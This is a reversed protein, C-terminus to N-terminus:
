ARRVRRIAATSQADPALAAALEGPGFPKHLVIEDVPREVLQESYGTMLVIQLRPYRERALRALELGSRGGPMVIDSLLLEFAGGPAELAALAAEASGVHSVECGAERLARACARAVELNDDVLLISQPLRAVAERQAAAAELRAATAPLFLRVRTGKGRVSDVKISGGAQECFGYVQSLGLGTGKGPPKTTFFPDFIRALIGPEIGRGTDTMEIVACGGDLGTEEGAAAARVVLRVTGGDPMADAANVALNLLALELGARDAVVTTPAGEARTELIISGTLVPKILAGWNELEAGLVMPEPQVPQRRAFALLQRTLKTASRVAREIAALSAARAAEDQSRKLLLANNAVVMLLNNFDHAVGGTLRGLAELKQAQALAAEARERHAMEARLARSVGLERQARGVATWAALALLGALPLIFAALLLMEHRWSALVAARSKTAAVFIPYRPVRQLAGLKAEGQGSALVGVYGTEPKRRATVLLPDQAALGAGPAHGEPATALIMGDERYLGLHLGADDLAMERYFDAFHGPLLSVSIIGAFSGDPRTRRFATDFFVEQTLRAVVPEAVFVRADSKAHWSFFPRESVNLDRPVPFFRNSVLPRGDAAWIWVSQIHGLNATISKLKEHLEAESARIEADSAAGIFNLITQAVVENTDIVRTAHEQAVRSARELRNGGESLAHRYSQWAILAFFVAPLLVAAAISARLWPLASHM